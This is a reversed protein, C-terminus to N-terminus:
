KKPAAENLLAYFQMFVNDRAAHEKHCTFCNAQPQPAATSRYGGMMPGGFGYYAWSEPVRRSDKVALELMHVDTAFQGQRAPTANTGVGQGILAFMTGERFTGTEIFHRYAGPEMLTTNFMQHDQGGDSYSLGLASGVLVWRRYDDPLVLNRNADYRPMVDLSRATAAQRPQAAVFNRSAWVAVLTFIVLGGILSSLATFRDM